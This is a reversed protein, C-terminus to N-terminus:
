PSRKISRGVRIASMTLAALLGSEEATFAMFIISRRNEANLSTLRRAVELMTVTGSGNDDAGNHVAVTGPALSGMGGMGVHDYHAGVVVYEDKLAGAGPMLAIVNRVPTDNKKLNTEGKVEVGNLLVSQPKGTEDITKELDSLSKGCGAQILQNALARTCYITPVTESTLPNGAAEIAMPVDGANNKIKAQISNVLQEAIRLRTQM